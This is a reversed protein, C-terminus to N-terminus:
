FKWLKHLDSLIRLTILHLFTVHAPFTACIPSVLFKMCFRPRFLEHSSTVQSILRLASSSLLRVKRLSTIFNHILDLHIVIPRLDFLPRKQIYWYVKIKLFFHMRVSNYKYLRWQQSIRCLPNHGFTSFIKPLIAPYAPSLLLRVCHYRHQRIVLEM